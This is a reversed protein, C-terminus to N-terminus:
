KALRALETRAEKLNDAFLLHSIAELKTHAAKDAAFKKRLTYLEVPLRLDQATYPFSSSLYKRRARQTAELDRYGFEVSPEIQTGEGWDNWTVLQILSARSVLARELTQEYTKGGRDEIEGWSKQVQAQAYIDHFRPFASPIFHSWGKARTYFQDMERFSNATGKGPQPWAFGGVAPARRNSETYFQPPQPLVSFLQNWQDGSYYGSGFVLFVPRGDQKLYAPDTFWNAQVWKMMTQGHVVAETAPFRQAAIMNSVSADEYVVSFELGAKKLLALLHQTNRHNIGYDLFDDTGYWDVFVGDIGAFKMLLVHCELVDPDNSDYLGLLPTFHSAIEQRGNTVRDPHYHNMTWHWGWKKAVPDAEFWPM